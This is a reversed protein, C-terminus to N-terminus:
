KKLLEVVKDYNPHNTVENVYEVYIINRDKDLVFVSRVQLRHDEILTGYQMAFDLDKHDSLTIVNDLGESACWRKQAFPLDNSITLVEVNNLDSLEKNFKKTQFDCVGTDISPVASIVIYDANYDDLTKESLDNAIVKFNPAKDGVKKITGKVTVKNGGFTINM